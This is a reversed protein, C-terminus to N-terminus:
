ESNLRTEHAILWKKIDLRGAFGVLDGNKGIVRHCPVLLPVPNKNNAGGVARCAKPNGIRKALEGYSITKGHPIKGLGRWVKKQFETGNLDLPLDFRTRKGAFYEKLQKQCEQLVPHTSNKKSSKKARLFHIRTVGSDSAQIELPGIPSDVITTAPSESM